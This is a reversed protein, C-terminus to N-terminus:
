FIIKHPVTNYEGDDDQNRSYGGNGWVWVENKDSLAYVTQRSITVSNSHHGSYGTLSYDIFTEESLAPSPYDNPNRQVSFFNGSTTTGDGQQGQENYGWSYIKGNNTLAFTDHSWTGGVMSIKVVTEGTPLNLQLWADSDGGELAGLGGYGKSWVSGDNKLIVHTMTAGNRALAKVVNTNEAGYFAISRNFDLQYGSWGGTTNNPSTSRFYYEGNSLVIVVVHEAGRYASSWYTNDVRQGGVYVVKITEDYQHWPMYKTFITRGGSHFSFDSHGSTYMVGDRTIAYTAALDGGAMFCKEIELDQLEPPHFPTYQDSTSGTGLNGQAGYGWLYLKYDDTICFYRGSGSWGQHGGLDIIKADAPLDGLGNMLHPTLVDGANGQGAYESDGNGWLRGDLDVYFTNNQGDLGFSIGVNDPFPILAPFTRGIDDNRGAGLRAVNTSGIGRVTGDTMIFHKFYGGGWRDSSGDQTLDKFLSQVTTGNRRLSQRFEPEGSSNLYLHQDRVGKVGTEGRVLLEGISDADAVGPLFNEFTGSQYVFASHGIRVVDREVYTQTSDFEGRYRYRISAIDIYM